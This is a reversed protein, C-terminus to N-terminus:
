VCKLESKWTAVDKKGTAIDDIPGYLSANFDLKPLAKKDYAAYSAGVITEVNKESYTAFLHTYSVATFTLVQSLGTALAAGKIGMPFVVVLVFDM